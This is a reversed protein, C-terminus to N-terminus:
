KHHLEAQFNDFLKLVPEKGLSELYREASKRMLDGVTAARPILIRFTNSEIKVVLSFQEQDQYSIEMTQPKETAPSKLAPSDHSKSTDKSENRPIKKKNTLSMKPNSDNVLFDDDCLDNEVGETLLSRRAERSNCLTHSIGKTTSLKPRKPVSFDRGVEVVSDKFDDEADAMFSPRKKLLSPLKEQSAFSKTQSKKLTTERGSVDSSPLRVLPSNREKSTDKSENRSIKKNSFSKKLNSADDDIDNVFFDDDCVDTEIGDTLLIGRAEKSSSLTHRIGKLITKMCHFESDRLQGQCKKLFFALYDAASWGKVERTKVNAQHDLLLQIIESDGVYCADMLPTVNDKSTVNVNAGADLLAKVYDVEKSMCADHLAAYGLKDQHNVPYGKRRLEDKVRELNNPEKVLQQLKTEGLKNTTVRASRETVQAKSKENAIEDEEDSSDDSLELGEPLDKEEHLMIFLPDSLPGAQIIEKWKDKNSESSIDACAQVLPDM